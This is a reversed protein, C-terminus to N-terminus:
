YTGTAVSTPHARGSVPRRLHQPTRPTEPM